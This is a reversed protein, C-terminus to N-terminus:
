HLLIIYHAFRVSAQAARSLTGRGDMLGARTLPFGVDVPADAHIEPRPDQMDSHQERREGSTGRLRLGTANM